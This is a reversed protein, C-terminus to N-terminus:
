SDVSIWQTYIYNISSIGFLRRIHIFGQLYHSLSGNGWSTLRIKDMLLLLEVEPHNSFTFRESWGLIQSSTIIWWGHFQHFKALFLDWGERTMSVWPVLMTPKMFKPHHVWSAKLSYLVAAFDLSPNKNTLCRTSTIRIAPIGSFSMLWGVSDHWKVSEGVFVFIMEGGFFFVGFLLWANRLTRHPPSIVWGDKGWQSFVGVRGFLPAVYTKPATQHPGSALKKNLLEQWQGSKKSAEFFCASKLDLLEGKESVDSFRWRFVFFPPTHQGFFSPTVHSSFGPIQVKFPHSFPIKKLSRCFACWHHVVLNKHVPIVGWHYFFELDVTGWDLNWPADLRRKTPVTTRWRYLQPQGPMEHLWQEPVYFKRPPSTRQMTYSGLIVYDRLIPRFGPFSLITKWSDMNLHSKNIESLTYPSCTPCDFRLVIHCSKFQNCLSNWIRIWRELFWLHLHLHHRRRRRHHHHHHHRCYGLVGKWFFTSLM